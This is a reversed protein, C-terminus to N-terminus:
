ELIVVIARVGTADSVSNVTREAEERTAFRGVLVKYFHQEGVTRMDISADFGKERLDRYMRFANTRDSFASAQVAFAPGAPAQQAASAAPSSTGSSTGSATAAGPTVTSDPAQIAMEAALRKGAERAAHAQISEPYNDLLRRTFRDANDANGLKGWALAMAELVRPTVTSDDDDEELVANAADLADRWQEMRVYCEMRATAALTRTDGPSALALCVDFRELARQPDGRELAILGLRYLADPVRVSNPYQQLIRECADAAADSDGRALYLEAGAYVAEAAIASDPPAERLALLEVERLLARAQELNDTLRVRYLLARPDDPHARRYSNLRVAAEGIQGTDIMHEIDDLEDALAAAVVLLACLMM